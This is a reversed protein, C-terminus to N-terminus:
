TAKSLRSSAIYVLRAEFESIWVSSASFSLTHLGWAERGNPLTQRLGTQDQVRHLWAHDQVESGGAEVELTALIVPRCVVGLESSDESACVM